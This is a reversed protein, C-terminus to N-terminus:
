NKNQKNPEYKEFEMVTKQESKTNTPTACAGGFCGMNFVAQILLIASGALYIGEGASFYGVLMAVSLALRFYRAFDWNSFYDKIKVLM